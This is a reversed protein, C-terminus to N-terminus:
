LLPVSVPRDRSTALTKCAAFLCAVRLPLPGLRAVPRADGVMHEGDERTREVLRAVLVTARLIPLTIWLLARFALHRM